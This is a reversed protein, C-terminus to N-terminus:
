PYLQMMTHWQFPPSFFFLITSTISHFDMVYRLQSSDRFLYGSGSLHHYQYQYISVISDGFSHIHSCIGYKIRKIQKEYQRSKRKDLLRGMDLSIIGEYRFPCIWFMEQSEVLNRSNRLLNNPENEKIRTMQKRSLAPGIRNQKNETPHDVIDDNTHSDVPTLLLM